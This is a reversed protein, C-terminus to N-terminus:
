AVGGGGGYLLKGLRPLGARKLVARPAMDRGTAANFRAVAAEVVDAAAEPAAEAWERLVGDPDRVLLGFRALVRPPFDRLNRTLLVEAEGGVAAAVVHVDAADPLVLGAEVEPDPAVLAGAFEDVLAEGARRAAAEALPGDRAAARAWEELVRPSVLPVLAGARAAGTLVERMVTAVLLNADLFARM